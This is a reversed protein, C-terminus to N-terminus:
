PRRGAERRFYIGLGVTMTVAGEGALLAAWIPPVRGVSEIGGITFAVLGCLFLLVVRASPAPCNAGGETM